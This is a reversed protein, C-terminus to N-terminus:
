PPFESPACRKATQSKRSTVRRLPQARYGNRKLYMSQGSHGLNRRGSRGRQRCKGDSTSRCSSQRKILLDASTALSGGVGGAPRGRRCSACKFARDLTVTSPNGILPLGNGPVGSVAGVTQVTTMQKAEQTSEELEGRWPGLFRRGAKADPSSNDTHSVCGTDM